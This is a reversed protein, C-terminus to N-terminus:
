DLVKINIQSITKLKALAAVSFYVEDDRSFDATDLYQGMSLKLKSYGDDVVFLIEADSSVVQAKKLESLNFQGKIDKKGEFAACISSLTLTVVARDSLKRNMESFALRTAVWGNGNYKVCYVCDQQQAPVAMKIRDFATTIPAIQKKMEAAILSQLEKTLLDAEALLKPLEGKAGVWMELKKWIDHLAAIMPDLGAGEEIADFKTYVASSLEKLARILKEMRQELSVFKEPIGTSPDYLGLTKKTTKVYQDMEAPNKAPQKDSSVGELMYGLIKDIDNYICVAHDRIQKYRESKYDILRMNENRELDISGLLIVNKVETMLNAVFQGCDRAICGFAKFYDDYMQRIYVIASVYNLSLKRDKEVKDVYEVFKTYYDGIVCAAEVYKKVDNLKM